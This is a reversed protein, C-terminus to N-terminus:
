YNDPDYLDTENQVLDIVENASMNSYQDISLFIEEGDDTSLFVNRENPIRDVHIGKSALENDIDTNSM